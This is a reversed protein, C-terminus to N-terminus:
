PDTRNLRSLKKSEVEIASFVNILVGTKKRRGNRFVSLKLQCLWRAQGENFDSVFVNEHLLDYLIHVNRLCCVILVVANVCKINFKFRDNNTVGFQFCLSTFHEIFCM